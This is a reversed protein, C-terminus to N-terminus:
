KGQKKAIALVSLGFPPKIIKELWLFVSGLKDFIKVPTLPMQKKGMLKVFILWGFFGWWNFYRVDIIKFGQDTLKKSYQAIGYRRFHGIEKDLKSYLIKHAPVISVFYGNNKNLNYINEIAKEDSGIHELVNFCIITEFVKRGFFYKGKEIDGFGYVINRKKMGNMKKVYEQELDIAWVGGFKSLKNTFNGLGFGVELISGQLYKKIFSVIWDNYWVAQSMAELTKEGSSVKNKKM